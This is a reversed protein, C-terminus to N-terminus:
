VSSYVTASFGDKGRANRTGHSNDRPVLKPMDALRSIYFILEKGRVLLQQFESLCVHTTVHTSTCASRNGPEGKVNENYMKDLASQDM